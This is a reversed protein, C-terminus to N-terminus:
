TPPAYDNPCIVTSTYATGAGPRDQQRLASQVFKRARRISVGMDEGQALHAAITSAFMCGTGRVTSEMPKQIAFIEYGNAHVWVDTGVAAHLHGGKMIVHKPGFELLKTGAEIADDVSKISMGTLQKAENTNPTVVTTRKLLDHLYGDVLNEEVFLSGSTSSFVPDVVVPATVKSQDLFQCLTRLIRRNPLLGVKIAHIDFDTVLIMLQQQFLEESMAEVATAESSNQPVLATVVALGRAGNCSITMTDALVGAGGSGDFGGITLVIPIERM